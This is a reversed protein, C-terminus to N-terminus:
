IKFFKRAEAMLNEYMAHAASHADALSDEDSDAKESEHVSLEDSTAKFL